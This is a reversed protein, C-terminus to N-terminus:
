NPRLERARHLISDPRLCIGPAYCLRFLEDAYTLPLKTANMSEAITEQTASANNVENNLDNLQIVDVHVENEITIDGLGLTASPQCLSEQSYSTMKSISATNKHWPWLRLPESKTNPMSDSEAGASGSQMRTSFSERRLERSFNDRDAVNDNVQQQLRFLRFPTFLLKISPVQTGLTGMVYFNLLTCGPRAQINRPPCSQDHCPAMIPRSSFHARKRIEGPFTRFLSTISYELNKCFDDLHKNKEIVTTSQLYELCNTMTWGEMHSLLELHQVQLKKIQLTTSPLPSGIGNTTLIEFDGRVSPRMVLLNLHVGEGYGTKSISYDRMDRLYETFTIEPVHLRQSLASAVHVITTFRFGLSRLRSAEYNQLQRVCFLIQGKGKCLPLGTLRSLRSTSVNTALINHYLVGLDNLPQKLEESLEQAAMCFLQKFLSDFNVKAEADHDIFVGRTNLYRQVAKEEFKLYRRISPIYQQIATWNRSARFAWM